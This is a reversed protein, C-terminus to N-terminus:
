KKEEWKQKLEQYAKKRDKEEIRMKFEQVVVAILIIVIIIGPLCCWVFFPSDLPNVKEPPPIHSPEMYLIEGTVGDIYIVLQEGEYIWTYGHFSLYWLPHETKNLYDPPKYYRMLVEWKERSLECGFTDIEDWTNFFNSGSENEMIIKFVTTSDIVEVGEFDLRKWECIGEEVSVQYNKDIGLWLYAQSGNTLNKIYFYGWALAFGDRLMESRGTFIWVIKADSSWNKAVKDAITKGELASIGQPSSTHKFVFFYYFIPVILIIVVVVAILAYKRHEPKIYIRKTM